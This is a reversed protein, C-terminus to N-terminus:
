DDDSPLSIKVVESFPSSRGDQYVVKATYKYKRGAMIEKDVFVSEMSDFVRYKVFGQGAASRYLEVKAVTLPELLEWALKITKDELAATFIDLGEKLIEPKAQLRLNATEDSVNQHFDEAQVKYEYWQGATILSDIYSEAMKDLVAVAEWQGGKEKKFITHHKVDESKSRTWQFAIANEEVQYSKIIPSTPKLTDARDVKISPSQKSYNYMHDVAFVKYFVHQTTTNLAVTDIFVTDKIAQGTLMSFEHEDDNAFQVKYGIVDLDPNRNWRLTVIGNSDCVGHLGTPISPPITDIITAYHVNSYAYNGATDLAAIQYFAGPLLAINEDLYSTKTPDLLTSAKHFAADASRSKYIYFGQIPESPTYSWDLQLSTEDLQTSSLDQPMSPPTLDRAYTKISNSPASTDGFPDIGRLRYYYSIYNDVSDQYLNWKDGPLQDKSFGTVIPLRNLRQYNTGDTSREIHYASYRKANNEREWRIIIVSDKAEEIINLPTAEGQFNLTSAHNTQPYELFFSPINAYVYYVYEKQPDITTDTFRLGSLTAAEGDMDCIFHCFTYRNNIEENKLIASTLDNGLYAARWEGHVTELAGAIYDNNSEEAKAIWVEKQEPRITDALIIYSKEVLLGEEDLEARGLKYGYKNGLFWSEPSSTGWRIVAQNDTKKALVHIQHDQDLTREQSFLSITFFCCIIAITNKM